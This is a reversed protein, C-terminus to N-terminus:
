SQGTDYELTDIIIFFHDNDIKKSEEGRCRKAEDENEFSGLLECCGDPLKPCKFVNYFCRKKIM